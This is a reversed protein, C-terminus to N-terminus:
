AQPPGRGDLAFLRDPNIATLLRSYTPAIHVPAIIFLLEGTFCTDKALQFECINCTSHTVSHKSSEHTHVLKVVHVLLMVTMLLLAVLQRIHTQKALYM